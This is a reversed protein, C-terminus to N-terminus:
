KNIAADVAKYNAVVTDIHTYCDKITEYFLPFKSSLVDFDEKVSTAATGSWVGGDGIKNFHNKIRNLVEEMEASYKKLNASIEEIQQYSVKM